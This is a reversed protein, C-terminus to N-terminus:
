RYFLGFYLLSVKGTGVPELIITAYDTDNILKSDDSDLYCIHSNDNLPNDYVLKVDLIDGSTSIRDHYLTCNIFQCTSQNFFHDLDCVGHYENNIRIQKIYRESPFDHTIM